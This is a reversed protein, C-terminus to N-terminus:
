RPTARFFISRGSSASLLSHQKRRLTKEVYERLCVLHRIARRREALCGLPVHFTWSQVGSFVHRLEWTRSCRRIASWLVSIWKYDLVM